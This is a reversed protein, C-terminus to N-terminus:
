KSFHTKKADTHYLSVAINFGIWINRKETSWRELAVLKRLRDTHEAHKWKCNEQKMGNTQSSHKSLSM